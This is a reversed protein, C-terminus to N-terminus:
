KPALIAWATYHNYWLNSTRPIKTRERYPSSIKREDVYYLGAIHEEYCRMEPIVPVRGIPYLPLPVFSIIYGQRICLKLITSNCWGVTRSWSASLSLNVKNRPIDSAKYAFNPIFQM